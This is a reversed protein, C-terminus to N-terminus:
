NEEEISSGGYQIYGVWLIQNITDWFAKSIALDVMGGFIWGKLKWRSLIAREEQNIKQPNINENNLVLYQLYPLLRLEQQTFESVSLLEEALAKLEETLQGRNPM